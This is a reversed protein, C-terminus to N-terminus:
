ETIEKNITETGPIVGPVIIGKAKGERVAKEYEEQAQTWLSGEVLIDHCLNLNNYFCKQNRDCLQKAALIGLEDFLEDTKGHYNEYILMLVFPLIIDNLSLIALADMEGDKIIRRKGSFYYDLKLNVLNDAVEKYFREKDFGDSPLPEKQRGEINEEYKATVVYILHDYKSELIYEILITGKITRSTEKQICVLKKHYSDIYEEIDKDPIVKGYFANKTRFDKRTDIGLVKLVKAMTLGAARAIVEISYGQLYLTNLSELMVEDPVLYKDNLEIMRGGFAQLVRKCEEIQEIKDILKKDKIM